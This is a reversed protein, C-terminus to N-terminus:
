VSLFSPIYQTSALLGKCYNKSQNAEYRVGTYRAPKDRLHNFITKLRRKDIPTQNPSTQCTIKVANFSRLDRPDMLDQLFCVKEMVRQPQLTGMQFALARLLVLFTNV